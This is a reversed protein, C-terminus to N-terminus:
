IPKVVIEARGDALIRRVKGVSLRYQEFTVDAVAVAEIGGNPKAVPVIYDGIKADTVNVPVKGCYAIRDVKQREFEQM